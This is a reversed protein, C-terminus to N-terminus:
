PLVAIGEPDTAAGIAITDIVTNTAGDIVNVSLADRCTVYILNSNEDVAIYFPNDDVAIFTTELNTSTDIVRVTGPVGADAVYAYGTTQNVAIGWPSGLGGLAIQTGPATDTTGNIIEINTDNSNVVYVTNTGEVVAVGEPQGGAAMASVVVLDTTGDIVYVDESTAHSVYIKNTIENVAIGDPREGVTIPGSLVETIGDIVYVADSFMATVYVKNTVSNVAIQYTDPVPSITNTVLDTEVDIVSVTGDGSNLVWVRGTMPNVGVGVPSSGVPITGLVAGTAGAIVTVTADGNRAVYIKPLAYSATVVASDTAGDQYAIAQVTASRNLAFPGTYETGLTPTPLTGDTTYRISAGVSETSITVGVPPVFSGVAPSFTPDSITPIPDAQPDFCGVLTV